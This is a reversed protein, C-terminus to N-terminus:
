SLEKKAEKKSVPRPKATASKWFLQKTSVFCSNESFLTRMKRDAGPGERLEKKSSGLTGPPDWVSGGPHGLSGFHFLFPEWFADFNM